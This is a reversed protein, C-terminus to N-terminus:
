ARRAGSEVVPEGFQIPLQDALLLSGGGLQVAERLPRLGVGDRDRLVVEHDVEAFRESL